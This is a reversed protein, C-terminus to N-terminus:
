RTTTSLWLSRGAPQSLVCITLLMRLLSACYFCFSCSPLVGADAWPLDALAQWNLYLKNDVAVILGLDQARVHLVRGLFM